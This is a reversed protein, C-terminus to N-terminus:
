DSASIFVIPITTTARQLPAVVPSGGALIVDPGDAVMQQALRDIRRADGAGWQYDVRLNRGGNWGLEEMAQRFVAGLDSTEPDSEATPMLIGIHRLRDSQQALARAALTGGFMAGGLMVVLDRRRMKRTGRHIATTGHGGGAFAM